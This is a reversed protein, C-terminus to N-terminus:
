STVEYSGEKIKSAIEMMEIAALTAEAGKNGAGPGSREIAQDMTDAAIVGHTIPLSYRLSLDLLGRSCENCILEFHFTDGRIVAGVAVVADVENKDALQQAALPLEFAGPVHVLTVDDKAGGCQEFTNIGGEILKETIFGNFQSAVIGLKRGKAQSAGRAVKM